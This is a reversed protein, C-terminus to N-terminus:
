HGRWIKRNFDAHFYFGAFYQRALIGFNLVRVIFPVRFTPIDSCSKLTVSPFRVLFRGCLFGHVSVLTSFGEWETSLCLRKRLLSNVTRKNCDRSLHCKHLCNSGSSDSEFECTVTFFNFWGSSIWLTLICNFKALFPSSEEKVLQFTPVLSVRSHIPMVISYSPLYNHM